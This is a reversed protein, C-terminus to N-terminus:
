AGSEQPRESVLSRKSTNGKGLKIYTRSHVIEGKMSLVSVVAASLLPGINTLAVLVFVTMELM